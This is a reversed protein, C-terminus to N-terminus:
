LGSAAAGASTRCDQGSVRPGYDNRLDLPNHGTYGPLNHNLTLRLEGGRQRTSAGDGQGAADPNTKASPIFGAYNPIHYTDKTTGDNLDKTTGRMGTKMMFDRNSPVQGYTGVDTQYSSLQSSAKLIRVPMTQKAWGPVVMRGGSNPKTFEELLGVIEPFGDEFEDWSIKGDENSDFYKVFIDVHNKAPERNLAAKLFERVETGEIFGSQNTDIRDFAERYQEKPISKLTQVDMRFNLYSNGATTTAIFPKSKKSDRSDAMAAVGRRDPIKYHGPQVEGQKSQNITGYPSGATPAGKKYVVGHGVQMFKTDRGYLSEGPKLGSCNQVAM